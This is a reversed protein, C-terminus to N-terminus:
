GIMRGRKRRSCHCCINNMLHIESCPPLLPVNLAAPASNVPPGARQFMAAVLSHLLTISPATEKGGGTPVLSRVGARVLGERSAGAEKVDGVLPTSSRSWRRLKHLRRFVTAEQLPTGGPASQRLTRECWFRLSKERRGFRTLKSARSNV